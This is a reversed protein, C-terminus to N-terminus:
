GRDGPYLVRPAPSTRLGLGLPGAQRDQLGRLYPGTGARRHRLGLAHGYQVVPALQSRGDPHGAHIQDRRLLGPRRRRFRFPRSEVGLLDLNRGDPRLGAQRQDGRHHHRRRPCRQGAGAAVALVPRGRGRHAQAQGPGRGQPFIEPGSRRLRGPVLGGSGRNRGDPVGGLRGPQSNRQIGHPLRHFRIAAPRGRHLTKHDAHGGWHGSCGGGRRGRDGSIVVVDRTLSASPVCYTNCGKDPRLLIKHCFCLFNCSITNGISQGGGNSPRM